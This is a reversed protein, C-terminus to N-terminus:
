SREPRVVGDSITSVLFIGPIEPMRSSFPAKMMPAAVDPARIPSDSGEPASPGPDDFCGVQDTRGLHLAPSREGAVQAVCRRCGIANRRQDGGARGAHHHAAVAAALNRDLGNAGPRPAGRKGAVLEDDFKAQGLARRARRVGVQAEDRAGLHVDRHHAGRDIERAVRAADDGVGPDHEARHRRGRNQHRLGRGRQDAALEVVVASAASSSAARPAQLGILSLRPVISYRMLTAPTIVRRAAVM